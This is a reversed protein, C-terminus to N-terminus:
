KGKSLKNLLKMNAETDILSYINTQSPVRAVEIIGADELRRILNLVGRQTIFLLGSLDNLSITASDNSGRLHAIFLRLAATNRM